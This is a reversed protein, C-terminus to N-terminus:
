RLSLTLVATGDPLAIQVARLRSEPLAIGATYEVDHGSQTWSGLRHRAGATDVAQLTYVAPAGLYAGSAAYRCDVTIRTGWATDVVAATARVPTGAVATMPRGAAVPPPSSGGTGLVVLLAAIAAAAATGAAALGIRLRTRRRRVTRLLRPLVDEPVPPAPEELAAWDAPGLGALASATPALAAVRDACDGCGALHQEFAARQPGSLLGLVYAADDHAFRDDPNM